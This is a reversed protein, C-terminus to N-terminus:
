GCQRADSEHSMYSQILHEMAESLEPHDCCCMPAACCRPFLPIILQRVQICGYRDM